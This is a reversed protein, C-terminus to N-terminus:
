MVAPELALREHWRLRRERMYRRANAWLKEVVTRQSLGYAEILAQFVCADIAYPDAWQSLYFTMQCRTLQGDIDTAPTLSAARVQESLQLMINNMLQQTLPGAADTLQPNSQDAVVWKANPRRVVKAPRQVLPRDVNMILVDHGQLESSVNLENNNIAM